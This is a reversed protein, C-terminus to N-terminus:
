STVGTQQETEGSGQDIVWIIKMKTAGAEYLMFSCNESDVKDIICDNAALTSMHDGPLSALMLVVVVAVAGAIAWAPKPLAFIKMIRELLPERGDSVGPTEIAASVRSWVQSLDEKGALEEYHAKLLRSMTELRKLEGACGACVKLHESVTRFERGQLENDHFGGLLERVKECRITM